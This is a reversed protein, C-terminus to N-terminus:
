RWARMADPLHEVSAASSICFGSQDGVPFDGMEVVGALPVRFTEWSVATIPLGLLVCICLSISGQHGIFLIRDQEVEGVSPSLQWLGGAAGKVIGRAKLTCCLGQEVRAGFEALSEGGHEAFAAERDRLASSRARRISQAVRGPSWTSWNPYRVERFWDVLELGNPDRGLALEATSVARPSSSVVVESPAFREVVGAVREGQEVGVDTLVPEVVSVGGRDQWSVQGHRIFMLRIRPEEAGMPGPATM